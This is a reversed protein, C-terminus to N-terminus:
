DPNIMMIFLVSSIVYPYFTVSKMGINKEFLSMASKAKVLRVGSISYYFHVHAM